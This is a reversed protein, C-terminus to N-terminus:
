FKILTLDTGQCAVRNMCTGTLSAGGTVIAKVTGTLGVADPTLQVSINLYFDTGLAANTCFLQETTEGKGHEIVITTPLETCVVPDAAAPDQEPIDYGKLNLDWTGDYAQIGNGYSGGCGSFATLMLAISLPVVLGLVSAIKSKM